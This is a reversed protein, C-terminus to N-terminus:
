VQSACRGKQWWMTGVQYAKDVSMRDKVTLRLLVEIAAGVGKSGEIVIIVFKEM